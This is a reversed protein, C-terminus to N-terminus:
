FGHTFKKNLSGHDQPIVALYTLGGLHREDINELAEVLDNAGDKTMNCERIYGFNVSPICESTIMSNNMKLAFENDNSKKVNGDRVENAIPELILIYKHLTDQGVGCAKCVKKYSVPDPVRRSFKGLNAFCAKRQRDNIFKM